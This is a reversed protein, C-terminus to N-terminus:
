PKVKPQYTQKYSEGSVIAYDNGPTGNAQNYDYNALWDGIKAKMVGWKTIIEAPKDLQVMHVSPGDVRTPAVFDTSGELTAPDVQYTKGIKAAQMSWSNQIGDEIVPNGAGDLRTAIFAGKPVLVGESRNELTFLRRGADETVKEFRVNYLQKTSEVVGKGGDEAAESFIGQSSKVSNALAVEEPTMAPGAAADAGSAPAPLDAGSPTEETQGATLAHHAASGEHGTTVAGHASGGDTPNATAVGAASTAHGSAGGDGPTPTAQSSAGGDNNTTSAAAATKVPHADATEELAQSIASSAARYAVGGAIGAALDTAGGGFNEWTHHAEAVLADNYNEPHNLEKAAQVWGPVHKYLEYAGYTAAAATLGIAVPTAVLSAVAATGAGIAFSEAVRLPHQTVEKYAGEGIDEVVAMAGTYWHHEPKPAAAAKIQGGQEITLHPLTGAQVEAASAAAQVHKDAPGSGSAQKPDGPQDHVQAISLKDTPANCAKADAPQTICDM